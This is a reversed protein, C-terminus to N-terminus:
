NEIKARKNKEAEGIAFWKHTEAENICLEYKETNGLSQYHEALSNLVRIQEEYSKIEPTRDLGKEKFIDLYDKGSLQYM